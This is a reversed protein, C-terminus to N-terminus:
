SRAARSQGGWGWGGWGGKWDVHLVELVHQQPQVLGSLGLRQQRHHRLHPRQGCSVLPCSRLGASNPDDTLAGWMYAHVAKAPVRAENGADAGVEGRWGQLHQLEARGLQLAAAIRQVVSSPREGGGGRCTRRGPRSCSTHPVAAASAQAVQTPQARAHVTSRHRMLMDMGKSGQWVTCVALVQCSVEAAPGAPHSSPSAAPSSLGAPAVIARCAAARGTWGGAHPRLGSGEEDSKCEEQASRDYKM